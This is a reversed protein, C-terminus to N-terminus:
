ILDLGPCWALRGNWGFASGDQNGREWQDDFFWVFAEYDGARVLAKAVRIRENRLKLRAILVDRNKRM